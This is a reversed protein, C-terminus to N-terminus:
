KASTKTTRKTVNKAGTTKPAATTKKAAAKKTPAKKAATEKKEAKPKEEKKDEKLIGASLLANYWQVLKKIDSSYVREEDYEPLVEEMFAKLEEPKAKHSIAEKGKLKSFVKSLVDALPMDEEYTYISIDELSSVRNSASAPFKRGDSLSEVILTNKSQGVVKYLGPKGSIALVGTIDM